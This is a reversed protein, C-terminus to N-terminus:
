ILRRWAKLYSDLGKTNYFGNIELYDLVEWDEFARAICLLNLLKVPSIHTCVDLYRTKYNPPCSELTLKFMIYFSRACSFIGMRSKEDLKDFVAKFDPKKQRTITHQKYKILIEEIFCVADGAQYKKGKDDIIELKEYELRAAQALSFFTSEFSRLDDIEKQRLAANQAQLGQAVISANADRQLNLSGILLCMTIFTLLPNSFGGVFDGFAGWESKDDSLGLWENFNLFYALLAGLIILAGFYAAKNM